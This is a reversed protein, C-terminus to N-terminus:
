GACLLGRGKFDFRMVRDLRNRWYRKVLKNYKTMDYKKVTNDGVARSFDYLIQHTDYCRYIDRSVLSNKTFLKQDTQDYYNRFLVEYPFNGLAPLVLARSMNVFNVRFQFMIRIRKIILEPRQALIHVDCFERRLMTLFILFQEQRMKVTRDSDASLFLLTEDLAILGPCDPTGRPIFRQPEYIMDGELFIYKIPDFLVGRRRLWSRVSPVILRINTAVYGGRLFVHLIEEVEHLTKGSGMLGTKLVLQGSHM